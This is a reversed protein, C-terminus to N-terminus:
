VTTILYCLFSGFDLLRKDFNSQCSKDLKLKQYKKFILVMYDSVILVILCLPVFYIIKIETKCWFAEVDRIRSGNQYFVPIFVLFKSFWWECFLLTGFHYFSEVKRREFYIWNAFASSVLLYRRSYTKWVRAIVQSQLHLTWINTKTWFIM